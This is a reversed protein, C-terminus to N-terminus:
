MMQSMQLYKNEELLSNLSTTMDNIVMNSSDNQNQATTSTIVQCQEVYQLTREYAASRMNLSSPTTQQTNDNTHQPKFQQQQQSRQDNQYFQHNQQQYTQQQQNQQQQQQQQQHYQSQNYKMNMQTHNCANYNQANTSVSAPNYAMNHNNDNANTTNYIGSYDGEATVNQSYQDAMYNAPYNQVNNMNNAAQNCQQWNEPVKANDPGAVAGNENYFHANCQQSNCNCHRATALHQHGFCSQVPATTGPAPSPLGPQSPTQNSMANNAAYSTDYSYGAAASPVQNCSNNYQSNDYMANQNLRENQAGFQYQSQNSSYNQSTPAVGTAVSNSNYNPLRSNNQAQKFNNPNYQAMNNNTVYADRTNTHPLSQSRQRETGYSKRQQATNSFSYCSNQRTACHSNYHHGTGGTTNSTRTANAAFEATSTANYISNLQSELNQLNTNPFSAFRPTSAPGATTTNSGTTPTDNLVSTEAALQNIFQMIDDSIVFKNDVNDVDANEIFNANPNHIPPPAASQSRPPQPSHVPKSSSQCPESMRRNENMMQMGFCNSSSQMQNSTHSGYQSSRRSSDVSIPDYYTSANSLRQSFQSNKRSSPDFDSSKMSTNCTSMTSNGSDRRMTTETPAMKLNTIRHNLENISGYMRRNNHSLPMQPSVSAGRPHYDPLSKKNKMSLINRNRNLLSHRVACAQMVDAPGDDIVEYDASEEAWIDDVPQNSPINDSMMSGEDGCMTAHSMPAVSLPSGQQGPSNTEESKISPSSVSETKASMPMDDGPLPSSGGAGSDESNDKPGAGGKHKKNAYFDAGHVTKVHKRLSSPDTYRKTCGPAKCIYPKENSHTRNQHKARDSANSFAKSCGPYECTYPKEGTHSRLHTKLNELRSYAKCCGEFTCKHPKEGTHRRMHVVLMYQAKFPKEERSCDQWRCVYSKKNAHIHDSNIHKVLDEQTPFEMTCDKWHCNTEIFDPEDKCDGASEPSSQKMEQKIRSTKRSNTMPMSTDAEARIRECPNHLQLGFESKPLGVDATLTPHYLSSTPSQHASLPPLLGGSRLLHAQLQQLHPTMSRHLSLNPSISGASLHGYSGSTTSSSRSCNVLSVLTNPSFRIMSNLDLTDSYPSNSLARKRNQRASNPRPSSSMRSADLSFLLESSGISSSPPLEALSRPPLYDGPFTLGHLSTSTPTALSSYLHEM